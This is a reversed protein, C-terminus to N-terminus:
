IDDQDSDDEPISDIIEQIEQSPLSPKKEPNNIEVIEELGPGIEVPSDQDRDERPEESSEGMEPTEKDPLIIDPSDEGYNIEKRM